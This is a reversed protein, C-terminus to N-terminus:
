FPSFNYTRPPSLHQYYFDNYNVFDVEWFTRSSVVKREIWSKTNLRLITLCKIKNLMNWKNWHSQVKPLLAFRGLFCMLCVLSLFSHLFFNCDKVSKSFSDNISPLSPNAVMKNRGYTNKQIGLIQVILRETTLWTAM